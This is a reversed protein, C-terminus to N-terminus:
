IWGGVLVFGAWWYPHFYKPNQRLTLQAQRLAEAKPMGVKLNQYFNEMLIVTSKDNVLWLSALTSRAGARYAVGALGLISRKDGQATECASLTLLELESHGRQRSELLSSFQNVNLPQDWALIMTQQPDSSFRGHTSIHVVPFPESNMEQQLRDRTFARNM